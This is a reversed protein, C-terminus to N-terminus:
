EGVDILRYRLFEHGRKCTYSLVRLSGLKAEGSLSVRAGCKECRRPDGIWDPKKSSKHATM